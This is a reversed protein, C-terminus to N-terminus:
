EPRTENKEVGKKQPPHLENVILENVIEEAGFDISPQIDVKDPIKDLTMIRDLINHAGSNEGALMLAIDGRIHEPAISFIRTERRLLDVVAQTMPQNRWEIYQLRVDANKMDEINLRM